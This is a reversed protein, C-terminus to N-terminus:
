YEQHHVCFADSVHLTIKCHSIFLVALTADTPEKYLIYLVRWNWSSKQRGQSLIQSLLWVRSLAAGSICAEGCSQLIGFRMGVRYLLEVHKHSWWLTICAALLFWLFRPFSFILLVPHSLARLLFYLPNLSPPSRPILGGSSAIYALFSVVYDAKCLRSQCM